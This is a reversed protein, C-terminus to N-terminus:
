AEIGALSFSPWCCRALGESTTEVAAKSAQVLLYTKGSGPPAKVVLSDSEGLMTALVQEIVSPHSSKSDPM